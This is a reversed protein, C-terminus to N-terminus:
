FILFGHVALAAGILAATGGIVPFFRRKALFYLSSLVLGLELFGEGLDLWLARGEQHRVESELTRAERAIDDSEHQYREADARFKAVLPQVRAPDTGLAEALAAGVEHLHAREKKAQFYSWQDNEETRKIITASHARHGGITALALAIGIIGVMVGVGRGFGDSQPGHHHGHIEIEAM